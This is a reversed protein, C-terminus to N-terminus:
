YGVSTKPKIVKNYLVTTVTLDAAGKREKRTNCLQKPPEIM